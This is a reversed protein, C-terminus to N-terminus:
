FRAAVHLCMEVESGPEPFKLPPSFHGTKYKRHIVASETGPHQNLAISRMLVAQSRKHAVDFRSLRNWKGTQSLTKLQEFEGFKLSM